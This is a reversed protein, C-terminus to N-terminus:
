FWALLFSWNLEIWYSLWAQTKTIGHVAVCHAEQGEGIGPTWEFEMSDTIGDLWRIMNILTSIHTFTAWDCRVRQLSMPGRDMSNELCSFQFPYGNWEGPFGGLGPILGCKEANYTSEKGDSRGPWHPGSELDLIRLTSKIRFTISVWHFTKILPTIM